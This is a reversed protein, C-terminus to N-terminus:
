VVSKRDLRPVFTFNRVNCDSTTVTTAHIRILVDNDGPAPKGIEGLSLEEPPGYRSHIIAKM